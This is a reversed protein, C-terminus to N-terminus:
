EQSRAVFDNYKELVFEKTQDEGLSVFKKYMEINSSFSTRVTKMFEGLERDVLGTWQSVLKGNFVKKGREIIEIEMRKEIVKRDFEPFRDIVRRYFEMSRDVKTDVDINNEKLYNLFMNYVKRKRDRMRDDHKRNDLNFCYGSFFESSILYDFMENFTYFGHDYKYHDLRFLDLVDNWNTTVLVNDHIHDKYRIPYFLGNFGLKFRVSRAIRGLLNGFDNFSFYKVAFDFYQDDIFIVDVQLGQYEFSIVDGNRFVQRSNFQKALADVSNDTKASKKVCVDLDGFTQKELVYRPISCNTNLTHNIISQVEVAKVLFEDKDHRYCFDKLANGGM